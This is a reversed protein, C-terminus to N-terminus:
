PKGYHIWLLINPIAENLSSSPNPLREFDGMKNVCFSHSLTMKTRQFHSVCRGSHSVNLKLTGDPMKLGSVVTDERKPSIFPFM